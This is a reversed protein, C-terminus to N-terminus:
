FCMIVRLLEVVDQRACGYVALCAAFVRDSQEGLGCKTLALSLAAQRSAVRCV